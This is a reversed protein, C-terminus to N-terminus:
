LRREPPGSRGDAGLAATPALSANPSDAVFGGNISTLLGDEIAGAGERECLNAACSWGVRGMEVASALLASCFSALNLSSTASDSRLAM